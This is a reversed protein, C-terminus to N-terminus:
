VPVLKYQKTVCACTHSVVQGLNNGSLLWQRVVLSSLWGYVASIEFITLSLISMLYLVM